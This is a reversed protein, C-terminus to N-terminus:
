NLVLSRVKLEKGKTVTIYHKGCVPCPDYLRHMPFVAECEICQGEGPIHNIKRASGDLLTSKIAQEWAFEFASLEIGSLEGIDLEIEEVASANNRASEEEAIQIINMVISLEHM